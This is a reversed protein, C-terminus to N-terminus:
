NFFYTLELKSDLQRLSSSGSPYIFNLTPRIEYNRAISISNQLVYYQVKDSRISQDVDWFQKFSLRFKIKEVPNFLFGIDLGPGYRYGRSLGDYAEGRATMLAYFLNFENFLSFSAGIGVELFTHRCNLCGYDRATYLGSEIKWSPAKSLLNMPPLSTVNLAIIENLRFSDLDSDYQFEVGPFDIHSYRKYGLDNNMLDHYASKIKINTTMGSGFSDERKRYSQSVSLAYSDHGLDPRTEPPIAKLRKELEPIQGFTARRDLIALQQTHDEKSIKWHKKLNLFEYYLIAAELALPSKALKPDKRKILDNFEILEDPTLAQYKQLVQKQISPRFNVNKVIDTRSFLNKVSEGPIMYITHHTVNWEPKIAEIAALIQYSCNEDFFYYDFYGNTELEWLHYLFRKTEDKTFNLEYEWLDRNEGQIYEKIKSHYVETSWVGEYGGTLGFYMFAFPNEDDSVRAAYNIGIDVIDARKKSNVKIFTHGFMSAPNNPYASSFVVSITEPDKFSAMFEDLKPCTKDQAQIKVKNKLFAYRAPFACQPQLSYKGVKLTSDKMAVISAKLESLPNTKGDQAFFFGKGDVLSRLKGYASVKYHLLRQWEASQSWQSLDAETPENAHSINTFICVIAILCLFSARIKIM